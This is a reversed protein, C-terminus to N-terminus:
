TTAFAGFFDAVPVTGAFVGFFRDTGARDDVLAALLDQLPPPAPELSAQAFTFEYMPMASENRRREYDALAEDWPRRGGLADDM